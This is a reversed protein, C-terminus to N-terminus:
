LFLENLVANVLVNCIGQHQKFVRRYYREPAVAGFVVDHRFGGCELLVPDRYVANTTTSLCGVVPRPLKHSVGNNMQIFTGAVYSTKNKLQFFNEHPEQGILVAYGGTPVGLVASDPDLVLLNRGNTNGNAVTDGHV